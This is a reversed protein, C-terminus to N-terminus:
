EDGREPAPTELPSFGAAWFVGLAATSRLYKVFNMAAPSHGDKKKIVALGYVIPPHLSDAITMVTRLDPFAVTDSAYILGVDAVGLRVAAAAAAVNEVPILKAQLNEYLGARELAACAYRGAPAAAPDAIAIRTIADNTLDALERIPVDVGTPAAVILHNGLLPWWDTVLEEGDSLLRQIWATDASLYLDAPVGARIQQALTGSAGYVARVKVPTKRQYVAIISDLPVALSAAALVIVDRREARPGCGTQGSAVPLLALIIFCCIRQQWSGFM